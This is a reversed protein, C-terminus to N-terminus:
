RYVTLVTMILWRGALVALLGLAYNAGVNAAALSPALAATEAAFTSYTTFSSLFGTGLILRTEPGIVGVLRSEYLLIGLAFFFGFLATAVVFRLQKRRGFSEPSPGADDDAAGANGAVTEGEDGAGARGDTTKGTPAGPGTGPATPGRDPTSADESSPM